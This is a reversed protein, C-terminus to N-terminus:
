EKMESKGTGSKRERQRIYKVDRRPGVKGIHFSFSFEHMHFQPIPISEILKKELEGLVTVKKRRTLSMFLLATYAFPM